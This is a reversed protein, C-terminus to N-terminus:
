NMCHKLFNYLNSKEEAADWRESLESCKRTTGLLVRKVLVVAAFDIM